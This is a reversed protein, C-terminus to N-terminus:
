LVGFTAGPHSTVGPIALVTAGAAVQSTLLLPVMQGKLHSVSSIGGPYRHVNLSAGADVHATHLTALPM